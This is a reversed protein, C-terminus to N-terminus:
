ISVARAMPGCCWGVRDPVSRTWGEHLSSEDLMLVAGPAARSLMLSRFSLTASGSATGQWFEHLAFALASSDLTRQPGRSLRVTAVGAPKVLRM